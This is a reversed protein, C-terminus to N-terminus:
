DCYITTVRFQSLSRAWKGGRTRIWGLADPVWLLQQQSSTAHQFGVQDSLSFTLFEQTLVHKDRAVHNEDLELILQVVQRAQLQQTLARLCKERALGESRESGCVIFLAEFDMKRLAGLITKKRSSSEKVFHISTQGRKRLSSLSKRIRPVQNIDVFVACLVFEKSKSEDVFVAKMKYNNAM